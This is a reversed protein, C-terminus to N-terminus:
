TFLIVFLKIYLAQPYKDLFKRVQDIQNLRIADYFADLEIPSIGAYGFSGTNELVKKGQSRCWAPFNARCLPVRHATEQMPIPLLNFLTESTVITCNGDFNIGDCTKMRLTAM